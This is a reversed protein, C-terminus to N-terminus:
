IRGRLKVPLPISVGRPISQLWIGYGQTYGLNDLGTRLTDMGQWTANSWLQEYKIEGRAQDRFYEVDQQFDVIPPVDQVRGLQRMVRLPTYPRTYNLGLLVLVPHISFGVLIVKPRLWLYTWLVNDDIRSELFEIWANVEVPLSFKAFRM